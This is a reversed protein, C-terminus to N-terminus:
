NKKTLKSRGGSFGCFPPYTMCPHHNNAQKLLEYKPNINRVLEPEPAKHNYPQKPKTYILPIHYLVLCM